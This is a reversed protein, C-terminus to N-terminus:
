RVTFTLVCRGWSHASPRPQAARSYRHHRGGLVPTAVVVGVLAVARPASASGGLSRHRRDANYYEAYERVTRLLHREGRPIINDTGERRISGVAREVYVNQWPSRPISVLEEIGLAKMERHFAWGYAGDRGRQLFRRIWGDGPFAEVMQQAVRARSPVEGGSAPVGM